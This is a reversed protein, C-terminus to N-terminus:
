QKAENESIVFRIENAASTDLWDLQEQTHDDFYEPDTDGPQLTLFDLLDLMSQFPLTNHWGHRPMDIPSPSFDRGSFILKGSEYLEYAFLDQAPSIMGIYETLLEVGIIGLPPPLENKDM